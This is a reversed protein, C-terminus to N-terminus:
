VMEWEADADAGGEQVDVDEWEEDREGKVSVNMSTLKPKPPAFRLPLELQDCGFEGSAFGLNSGPSFEKVGQRFKSIAAHQFSDLDEVPPYPVQAQPPPLQHWWLPPYHRSPTFPPAPNTINMALHQNQLDQLSTYIAPEFSTPSLTSPMTPHHHHTMPMHASATTPDYHMGSMFASPACTVDKSESQTHRINSDKEEPKSLERNTRLKELKANMDPSNSLFPSRSPLTSTLACRMTSHRHEAKLHTPETVRQYSTPPRPNTAGPKELHLNAKEETPRPKHKLPLTHSNQGKTPAAGSVDISSTPKEEAPKPRQKYPLIVLGKRDHLGLSTNGSEENNTSTESQTLRFKADKEYVGRLMQHAKQSSPPTSAKADAAQRATSEAANALYGGAGDVAERTVGNRKWGALSDKKWVLGGMEARRRAERDRTIDMRSKVRKEVGGNAIGSTVLDQGVDNNAEEIESETL